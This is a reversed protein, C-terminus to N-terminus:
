KVTTVKKFPPAKGLDALAEGIKMAAEDDSDDEAVIGRLTAIARVYPFGTKFDRAM